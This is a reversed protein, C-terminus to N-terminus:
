RPVGKPLRFRWAISAVLAVIAAVFVGLVWPMADGAAPPVRRNALVVEVHIAAVLAASLVALGAGTAGLWALTAERREPALWYDRHPLNVFRPWRRPLWAATIWVAFPMALSMAGMMWAYAERPMWGNARGDVAFHSAVLPPLGASTALVIAGSCAVLGAALWAALRDM